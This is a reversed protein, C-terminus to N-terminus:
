KGYSESSCFMMEGQELVVNVDRYGKSTRIHYKGFGIDLFLQQTVKIYTNRSAVCDSHLISNEIFLDQGAEMSAQNVSGVRGDQAAKILAKGMWWVMLYIYISGGAEMKAAEVM